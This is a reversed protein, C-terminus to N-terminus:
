SQTRKKQKWKQVVRFYEKLKLARGPCLTRPEASDCLGMWKSSTLKATVSFYQRTCLMDTKEERRNRDSKERHSQPTQFKELRKRYKTQSLSKEVVQVRRCRCFAQMLCRAARDAVKVFENTRLLNVIVWRGWHLSFM